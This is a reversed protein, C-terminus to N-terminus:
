EMHKLYELISQTMFRIELWSVLFQTTLKFNLPQMPNISTPPVTHFLKAIFHAIFTCGNSGNHGGITLQSLQWPFHWTTFKQQSTAPVFLNLTPLPFTQTSHHSEETTAQTSQINQPTLPPHHTPQTTINSPQTHFQWNPKTPHSINVFNEIQVSTKRNWAPWNYFNEAEDVSPVELEGTNNDDDSPLNEETEEDQSSMLGKHFSESLKQGNEM